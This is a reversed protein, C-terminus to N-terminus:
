VPCAFCIHLVIADVGVTIKFKLDKGPNILLIAILYCCHRRIIYKVNYLKYFILHNINFPNM